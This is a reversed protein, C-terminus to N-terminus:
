ASQLIVHDTQHAAYEIAALIDERVEWDAKCRRKGKKLTKAYQNWRQRELSADTGTPLQTVPQLRLHSQLRAPTKKSPGYLWVLAPGTDHNSATKTTAKNMTNETGPTQGASQQGKAETQTENIDDANQLGTWMGNTKHPAAPETKSEIKRICLVGELKWIEANSSTVTPFFGMSSLRILAM